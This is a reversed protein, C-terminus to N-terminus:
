CLGGVRESTEFPESAELLELYRILQQLQAHQQLVSDPIVIIICAEDNAQCLLECVTGDAQYGIFELPSAFDEEPFRCSGFTDSFLGDNGILLYDHVFDDGPEAIWIQDGTALLNGAPDLQYLREAIFERLSKSVVEPALCLLQELQQIVIM